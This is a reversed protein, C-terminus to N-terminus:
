CRMWIVRFVRLPTINDMYHELFLINKKGLLVIWLDQFAVSTLNSSHPRTNWWPKWVRSFQLFCSASPGTSKNHELTQFDSSVRLGLKHFPKEFKNVIFLFVSLGRLYKTKNQKMIARAYDKTLTIFPTTNKLLKWVKCQCGWKCNQSISSTAVSLDKRNRGGLLQLSSTEKSSREFGLLVWYLFLHAISTKQFQCATRLFFNRKTRGPLTNYVTINM